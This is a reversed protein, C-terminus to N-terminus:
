SRFQRLFLGAPLAGSLVSLVVSGTSEGFCSVDTSVLRTLLNCNMVTLSLFVISDCGDNGILLVEYEGEAMFVESGIAISGGQCIEEAIFTSDPKKIEVTLTVLSDCGMNTPFNLEYVGAEDFYDSGIFFSDGECIQSELFGFQQDEITLDLHLLGECGDIDPIVIDYDGTERFISDEILISDGFCLIQFLSSEFQSKVRLDLSVISDCGSVSVLEIEYIGTSDFIQSEVMFSDNHCIEAIVESQLFEVVELELYIFSDCGNSALGTLEYNGSEKFVENLIEISDGFCIQETLITKISDNAVLNLFVTSDCGNRSELVIEYM